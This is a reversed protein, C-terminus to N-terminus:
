RQFLTPLIPVLGAPVIITEGFRRTWSRPGDYRRRRHASLGFFRGLPRIEWLNFQREPSIRLVDTSRNQFLPTLGIAFITPKVPSTATLRATAFVESLFIKCGMDDFLTGGFTAVPAEQGAGFERAL